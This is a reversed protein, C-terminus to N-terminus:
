PEDARLSLTSATLTSQVILHRYFKKPFQTYFSNPKHTNHTDSNKEHNALISVPRPFLVGVTLLFHSETYSQAHLTGPSLFLIYTLYSRGAQLSDSKCANMM